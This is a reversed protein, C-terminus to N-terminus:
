AIGAQATPQPEPSRSWASEVLGVLQSKLLPVAAVKVGLQILRFTLGSFLGGGLIYGVGIAGALMAYPHREMRGAIDLKGRLGRVADRAESILQQATNGLQGIQGSLGVGSYAGNSTGNEQKDM